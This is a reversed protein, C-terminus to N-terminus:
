PLVPPQEHTHRRRHAHVTSTQQVRDRHQQDVQMAVPDVPTVTRQRVREEHAVPLRDLGPQDIGLSGLHVRLQGVSLPAVVQVDGDLVDGAAQQVNCRPTLLRRLRKGADEVLRTTHCIAVVLQPSQQM